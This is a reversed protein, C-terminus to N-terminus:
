RALDGERVPPDEKEVLHRFELPPAQLDEPLRQLVALDREGARGSGETKRCM